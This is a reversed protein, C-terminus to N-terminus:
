SCFQCGAVEFTCKTGRRGLSGPAMRASRGSEGKTARLRAPIIGRAFGEAERWTIHHDAMQLLMQQADAGIAEQQMQERQAREIHLQAVQKEQALSMELNLVMQEM